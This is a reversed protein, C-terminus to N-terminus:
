LRKSMDIYNLKKRWNCEIQILAKSRLYSQVLLERYFVLHVLKLKGDLMRMHGFYFNFSHTSFYVKRVNQLQLKNLLQIEIVRIHKVAQINYSPKSNQRLPNLKVHM